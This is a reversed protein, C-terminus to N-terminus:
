RRICLQEDYYNKAGQPTITAGIFPLRVQGLHSHGAIALNFDYETNETFDNLHDIQDPEHLILIKYYDKTNDNLFQYAEKYVPDGMLYDDLGIFVIPTNSNYYVYDFTNTLLTFNTKEKFINWYDKKDYDHNGPVAYKNIKAEIKNLEEILQNINDENLEISDDFLDGTFVVVDPNQENIRKVIKKVDDINNTTGYHLDSFQVIKFGDYEESLLNTKIPYEKIILGKTSIYRAYALCIILFVVLIIIIKFLMFPKVEKKENKENKEKKM